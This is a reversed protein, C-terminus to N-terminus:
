REGVWSTTPLNSGLRFVKNTSRFNPPNWDSPVFPLNSPDISLRSLAHQVKWFRPWMLLLELFAWIFCCVEFIADTANSANRGYVFPLKFSSAAGELIKTVNLSITMHFITLTLQRFVKTQEIWVIMYRTMQKAAQSSVNVTVQARQLLPQVNITTFNVIILSKKVNTWILEM